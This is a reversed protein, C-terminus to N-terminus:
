VNHVKKRDKEFPLSVSKDKYAILFEDYAPLL